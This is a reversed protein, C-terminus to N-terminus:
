VAPQIESRAAQQQRNWRFYDDMQRYRREIIWDEHHEKLRACVLRRCIESSPVILVLRSRRKIEQNLRELANATRIRLRHTSPFHFCSLTEGGETEAIEALEELDAYEALDAALALARGM